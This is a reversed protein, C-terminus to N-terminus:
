RATAGYFLTRGLALTVGRGTMPDVRLVTGECTLGYLTAGFAALGWVCRYGMAGIVRTRGSADLAIEVLTDDTTSADVRASAVLRGQLLAVDGSAERGPPFQAGEVAERRVPDVRFLSRGAAAYLTGDPAADLATFPLNSPAVVTTAGTVLDIQVLGTSGIGYLTRDPHLAIDTLGRGLPALLRVRASPLLVEYLGSPGHALARAVCGDVADCRHSIPCRGDDPTATCRGAAEDCADVTCAVADECRLPTRVCGRGLACRETGTCFLGDDCARDDATNSCRGSPDCRDVTCAVNDDCESDRACPARAEAADPADEFVVDPAPARADSADMAGDRGSDVRAADAFREPAELASRAGCGAFAFVPLSCRVLARAARFATAFTM